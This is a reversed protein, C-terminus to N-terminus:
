ELGALGKLCGVYWDSLTFEISCRRRISQLKRWTMREGIHIANLYDQPSPNQLLSVWSGKGMEPYLNVDGSYKQVLVPAFHKSAWRFFFSRQTYYALHKIYSRVQDRSFQISRAQTGFLFRPM